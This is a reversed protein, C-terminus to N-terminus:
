VTTLAGTKGKRRAVKKKLGKVKQCNNGSELVYGDGIEWGLEYFKEEEVVEVVM